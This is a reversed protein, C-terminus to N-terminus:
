QRNIARTRDLSIRAEAGQGKNSFKCYRHVMITINTYIVLFKTVKLRHSCCFSITFLIHNVLVRQRHCMSTPHVKTRLFISGIVIVITLFLMYLQWISTNMIEQCSIIPQIWSANMKYLQQVSVVIFILYIQIRQTPLPYHFLYKVVNAAVLIEVSLFQYNKHVMMYVAGPFNVHDPWEM